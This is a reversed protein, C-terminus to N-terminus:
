RKDILYLRLMTPAPWPEPVPRDRNAGGHEWRLFWSGQTLLHTPLMNSADRANKNSQADSDQNHNRGERLVIDSRMGSGERTHNDARADDGRTSGVEARSNGETDPIIEVLMPGGVRRLDPIPEVQFDSEPVRLEKRWMVPRPEELRLPRLTAEDLVVVTESIERNWVTQRLEGTQNDGRAVVPGVAHYTDRSTGQGSNVRTNGYASRGADRNAGQGSNVRSNGNASRSADRNVNVDSGAVRGADGSVEVGSLRVTGFINLAGTGSYSDGWIFDWDTAPVINWKGNEFRANYIQSAGAEDFRHYSMVARHSADWSLAMLPNSLGGGAPSPDVLLETNDITFPPQVPVGAASEWRTLDNGVTRAYSLSHNTAHDPSDRWMWLLHWRGDPGFAPLGGGYTYASMQGRGDLLPTDFLRSWQRTGTDYRYFHQDGQGSGGDRFTFYLAHDTNAFTPYDTRENESVMYLQEFEDISHPALSRYYIPRPPATPEQQLRRRYATIHIYNDSDLALSLKAHSGTQWLMQVPFRHFNWERSELRRQALTLYRDEDYFAVYQWGDRTLLEPPGTRHVSWVPAVDLSDLITVEPLNAISHRTDIARITLENQTGIATQAAVRHSATTANGSQYNASTGLSQNLQNSTSHRPNRHSAAGITGDTHRENFQQLYLSAPEVRAGFSEIFGHSYGFQEINWDHFPGERLEGIHGIAWNQATPPQQVVLPGETNWAVYNAGAWGHGTGYRLRNMMSIMDSVNDFLGATSWRHHPASWTLSQEAYSNLFVNPGSVWAGVFFAHRNNIGYSDRVLGNQGELHFGYRGVYVGTEDYYRGSDDYGEGLYWERAAVLNSSEQITIGLTNKGTMIGSRGYFHEMTINRAWGDRVNNMHLFMDAHRTDDVGHENQQWFSIARLHEVGSQTIRNRDHYRYIRGGGFAKEIANPLGSNITIENGHIATIIFEFDHSFPSWQTTGREDGRSPIRDMGIEHIWQENGRREVIISDGVSFHRADTVTFTRAGVPVYNDIIETASQMDGEIAGPGEMRIIWRFDPGTAILVTAYKSTDHVNTENVSTSVPQNQTRNQSQQQVRNQSERQTEIGSANQSDGGAQGHPTQQESQNEHLISRLTERFEDLSENRAPDLWFEKFDGQGEGRLVVGSARIHLTGAIEYIGSKLLVAGRFGNEDLPLSSVADIAAQIRETDDGHPSTVNGAEYLASRSEVVMMVPVEPLDMGNRYGVLSFDPLRNGRFDPTYRMRGDPGPHAIVSFNSPLRTTDLVTFAYADRFLLESAENRLDIRVTYRTHTAITSSARNESTASDPIRAGDSDEEWLSAPFSVTHSRGSRILVPEAEYVVEGTEYRMLSVFLAGRSRATVEVSPFAEGPAIVAPYGIRQEM